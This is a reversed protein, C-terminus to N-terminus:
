FYDNVGASLLPVRIPSPPFRQFKVQHEELLGRRV